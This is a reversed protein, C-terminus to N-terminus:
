LIYNLSLPWPRMYTWYQGHWTMVKTGHGISERVMSVKPVLISGLMDMSTEEKKCWMNRKPVIKPMHDREMRFMKNSPCSHHPTKWQILITRIRHYAIQWTKYYDSPSYGDVDVDWWQSEHNEKCSCCPPCVYNEFTCKHTGNWSINVKVRSIALEVRVSRMRAHYHGWMHIYM